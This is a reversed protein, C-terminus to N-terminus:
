REIAWSKDTSTALRFIGQLLSSNDHCHAQWATTPMTAPVPLLPQLSPALARNCTIVALVTEYSKHIPQGEGRYGRSPHTLWLARSMSGRCPLLSLCFWMILM